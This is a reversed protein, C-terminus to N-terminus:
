KGQQMDSPNNGGPQFGGAPNFVPPCEDKADGLFLFRVSLIAPYYSSNFYNLWPFPANPLGSVIPLEVSPIVLLKKTAMFGFGFKYHIQAIIKDPFEENILSGGSRNQSFQYDVNLGITNQIFWPNSLEKISNFNLFLLGHQDSFEGNGSIGLDTSTFTEKGGLSKFAIGFDLYNFYEQFKFLKYGGAELYLGVKGSPNYIVESGTNGKIISDNPNTFTYTIGPAIFWGMKKYRDTKPFFSGYSGNFNQSYGISQFLTFALLFFCRKSNM